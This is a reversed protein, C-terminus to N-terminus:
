WQELTRAVLDTALDDLAKKRAADEGVVGGEAGPAGGPVYVATHVIAEDKWLDRNRVQDRLVVSATLVIIYDRPSQDPAYNYVKSEYKVMRGVLRANATKESAIKLRGDSIFRNTVNTTAEQALGPESTDNEFSPIAITKVYGPLNTGSFSYACGAVLAAAAVCLVPALGFRVRRAGPACTPATNTRRDPHQPM